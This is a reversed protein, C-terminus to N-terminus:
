KWAQNQGGAGGIAFFQQRTQAQWEIDDDGGNIFRRQCSLRRFRGCQSQRAFFGPSNCLRCWICQDDARILYCCQVAFLDALGAVADAPMFRWGACWQAFTLGCKRLEKEFDPPLDLTKPQRGPKAAPVLRNKVLALHVYKATRMSCLTAIEVVSYGKNYADAFCREAKEQLEFGNSLSKRRFTYVNAV